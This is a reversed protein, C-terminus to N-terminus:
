RLIFSQIHSASPLSGTLVRNEMVIYVKYVGNGESSRCIGFFEPAWPDSGDSGLVFPDMAHSASMHGHDRLRKLCWLQMYFQYEVQHFLKTREAKDADEDISSLNGFAYTRKGVKGDHLTIFTDSHGAADDTDCEPIGPHTSADGVCGVEFQESSERLDGIDIDLCRDCESDSIKWLSWKDDLVASSTALASLLALQWM